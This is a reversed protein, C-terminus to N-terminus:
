SKMMSSSHQKSLKRPRYRVNLSRTRLESQFRSKRRSKRKRIKKMKIRKSMWKWKKKRQRLSLWRRWSKMRGVHFRRGKREWKIKRRWIITRRECTLVMVRRVTLVATMPWVPAKPLRKHTPTAPRQCRTLIKAATNSPKSPGVWSRTLTQATGSSPNRTSHISLPNVEKWSPM